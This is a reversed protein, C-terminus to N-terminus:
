IVRCFPLNQGASMACPNVIIIPCISDLFSGGGPPPPGGASTPPLTVQGSQQSPPFGPETSPPGGAEPSPNGPLGGSGSLGTPDESRIPQQPPACSLYGFLLLCFVQKLSATGSPDISNTPSNCAYRYFNIGGAFGIPDESIFRGASASYFRARYYLLNASIPVRGTFQFPYTGTTSTQGYPAYLYSSKVVGTQDVTAVTSNIADPLGYQVQGGSQVIALHSDISRGSLVSYWTGDSAAEYAVNTANDLVFSKTLNLSTGSDAQQILNGAYDYTFNTTQGASTVISKLRNRADWTYATTNSEQIL